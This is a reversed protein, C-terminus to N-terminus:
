VCLINCLYAFYDLLSVPSCFLEDLTYTSWFYISYSATLTLMPKYFVASVSLVFMPVFCVTVFFLVVNIAKSGELFNSKLFDHLIM